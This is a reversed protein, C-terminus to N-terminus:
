ATTARSGPATSSTSAPWRSAPPPSTASRRGRRRGRDHGLGLAHYGIAKLVMEATFNDSWHDMFELIESLPESYITALPVAGPGATGRRDRRPRHDRARAAAPRLRAAAALAPDAVLRNNRAARDVVLASLPPSEIGAFSPSGARRSASRTSPPPTAPSRRRDRAPDGPALPDRRAAEPRGVHADPRRVGQPRAAGGVHQGVRRGEGLVETPFRYSPASSSSRRTPSPSSRTRPPSSRSTPTARSSSRGSPLSVVM